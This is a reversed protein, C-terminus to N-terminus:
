EKGRENEVEQWFEDLDDLNGSLGSYGVEAERLEIGEKRLTQSQIALQKDNDLRLVAVQSFSNEGEIDGTVVDVIKHGKLNELVELLEDEM